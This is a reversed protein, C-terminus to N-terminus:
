FRVSLSAKGANYSTGDGVMGDYALGLTVGKAFTFDLGVSAVLSDEAIPLGEVGFATGTNVFALLATPTM